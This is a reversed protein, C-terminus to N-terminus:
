DDDDGRTSYWWLQALPSAGPRGIDSCVVESPKCALGASPAGTAIFLTAALLGRPTARLPPCAIALPAAPVHLTTPRRPAACYKWPASAIVATLVLPWPLPGPAVACHVCRARWSRGRKVSCVQLKMPM